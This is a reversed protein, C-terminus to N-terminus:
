KKAAGLKSLRRMVQGAIDAQMARFLMDSEQEKATANSENYNMDRSLAVDTPTILVRGDPTRVMYRLRATLTIDRVQAYATSAAAVRDRGEKLCLIILDAQAMSEVVQSSGSALIQRRLEDAMTSRTAFGALQVRKFALPTARRLEFGCGAVAAALAGGLAARLAARRTMPMTNM